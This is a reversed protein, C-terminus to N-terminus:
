SVSKKVETLTKFHLMSSEKLYKWKYFEILWIYKTRIHEASLPDTSKIKVESIINEYSKLLSKYPELFINKAVEPLSKFLEQFENNNAFDESQFMDEMEKAHKDGVNFPNLFATNEWDFYILESLGTSELIENKCHLVADILKKDIVIRPYIATKSELIYAKVLASSFIINDDSYFSGYSVGGRTYIGQSTM